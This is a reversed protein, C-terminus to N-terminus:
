LRKGSSSWGKRGWYRPGIRVTVVIGLAIAVSDFVMFAKYPGILFAVIAVAVFAWRISVMNELRFLYILIM